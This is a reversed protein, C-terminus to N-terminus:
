ENTVGSEVLPKRSGGPHHGTPESRVLAGNPQWAPHPKENAHGRNDVHVCTKAIPGRAAEGQKARGPDLEDFQLGCDPCLYSILSGDLLTYRPMAVAYCAPCQSSPLSNPM